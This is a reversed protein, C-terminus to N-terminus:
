KMLQLQSYFENLVGRLQADDEGGPQPRVATTVMEARQQKVGRCQMCQHAAKLLVIVQRAEAKDYLFDAIQRGMREQIQLMHSYHNVVRPLKSAGVILENPIYGVYAEGSFPLLHHACLSHFDIPGIVVMADQGDSPFCTFHQCLEEFARPHYSSLLEEKLMKAIRRPTNAIDLAGNAWEEEPIGLEQFFALMATVPEPKPFFKLKM